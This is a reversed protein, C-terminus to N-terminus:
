NMRGTFKNFYTSYSNTLEILLSVYNIGRKTPDHYFIPITQAFSEGRRQIDRQKTIGEREDILYGLVCNLNRKKSGNSMSQHEFEAMGHGM